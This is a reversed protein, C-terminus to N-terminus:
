DIFTKDKTQGYYPGNKVEYLVTGEQLVEFSHGAKYVVACDGDRLITEHLVTDDLDWFKAKIAGKLIIWAEQTTTTHRDLPNHKHARFSTDRSLIKTSIQLYESEPTVDTRQESIEWARNITLMLTGEECNSYIPEPMRQDGRLLLTVMLM